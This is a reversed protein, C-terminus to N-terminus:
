LMEGFQRLEYATNSGGTILFYKSFVPFFSLGENITDNLLVHTNHHTVRCLLCRDYQGTGLNEIRARTLKKWEYSSLDCNDVSALTSISEEESLDYTQFNDLYEIKVGHLFRFLYEGYRALYMQNNTPDVLSNYIQGFNSSLDFESEGHFIDLNHFILALSQLSSNEFPEKKYAEGTLLHLEPSSGAALNNVYSLFNNTKIDTHSTKTSEYIIEGRSGVTGDSLYEMSEGVVEKDQISLGKQAILTQSREALKLKAVSEDVSEGLIQMKKFIDNKGQTGISLSEQTVGFINAADLKSLKDSKFLMLAQLIAEWTQEDSLKFRDPITIGDPYLPLYTYGNADVSAHSPPLFGDKIVTTSYYDKLIHEIGRNYRTATIQKLGRKFQIAAAGTFEDELEPNRFFVDTYDFGFSTKTIYTSSLREASIRRLSSNSNGASKTALLASKTTSANTKTANVNSLASILSSLNQHVSELTNAVMTMGDISINEGDTFNTAVRLADEDSATIEVGTKKSNLLMPLTASEILIQLDTLFGEDPSILSNTENDIDYDQVIELLTKVPVTKQNIHNQQAEPELDIFSGEIYPSGSENLINVNKTIVSAMSILQNLGLRKGLGNIANDLNNLMFILIEYLPDNVSLYIKYRYKVDFQKTPDLDTFNYFEVMSLVSPLNTFTKRSMSLPNLYGLRALEPYSQGDVGNSIGDAPYKGVADISNSDYITKSGESSVRDIKINLTNRLAISMKARMHFAFAVNGKNTINVMHELLAPVLGYRRLLKTYDVAFFGDIDGNTKSSLLPDSIVTMEEHLRKSSNTTILYKTTWWEKTRRRGFRAQYSQRGSDTSDSFNIDVNGLIDALSSFDIQANKIKEIPRLDIVKPNLVHMIDLYPHLESTHVDGTMFRQGRRHVGGFWPTGKVDNFALERDINDKEEKEPDPTSSTITTAQNNSITFVAGFRQANGNRVVTEFTHPGITQAQDTGELEGFTIFDTLDIEFQGFNLTLDLEFDKVKSFALLYVNQPNKNQLEFTIVYPLEYYVQGNPFVKKYKKLIDFPSLYRKNLDSYQDNWTQKLITSMSVMKQEGPLANNKLLTDFIHVDKNLVEETTRALVEGAKSDYFVSYYLEVAENFDDDEVIKKFEAENSVNFIIKSEVSVCTKEENTFKKNYGGFFDIKNTVKKTGHNWFFRHEEGNRDMRELVEGQAEREAVVEPNMLWGESERWVITRTKTVISTTSIPATAEDIYPLISRDLNIGYNSRNLTIKNFYIKPIYSESIGYKQYINKPM